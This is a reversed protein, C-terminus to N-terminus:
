QALPPDDEPMDVHFHFQPEVYQDLVLKRDAWTDPGVKVIKGAQELNWAPFGSTTDHGVERLIPRIDTTWHAIRKAQVIAYVLKEVVTM